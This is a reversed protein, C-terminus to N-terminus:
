FRGLLSALHLTEAPNGLGYASHDPWVLRGGPDQAGTSLHPPYSGAVPLPGTFPRIPARALAGGVRGLTRNAARRAVARWAARLRAVRRISPSPLHPGQRPRRGQRGYRTRRISSAPSAMSAPAKSSTITSSTARRRPSSPPWIPYYLYVGTEHPTLASTFM